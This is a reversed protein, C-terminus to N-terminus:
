TFSSGRVLSNMLSSWALRNRDSARRSGHRSYCDSATMTPGTWGKPPKLLRRWSTATYALVMPAAGRRHPFVDQEVGPHAANYRLMLVDLPSSAALQGAVARNHISVGIARVKGTERLRVLEREMGRTWFTTVGVWGLLVVDLYDTKLSRLRREVASAITGSFPGIGAYVVVACAERREALVPAMAFTLGPARGALFFLNVGRDIAYRCGAEDLGYNGALGLRYLRTAPLATTTRYM